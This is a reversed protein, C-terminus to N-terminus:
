PFSHDESYNSPPLFLGDDITDWSISTLDTTSIIKRGQVTMEVTLRVVAGPFAEPDPFQLGLAVGAPTTATEQLLGMGRELDEDRVLWYTLKKEGAEATYKRAQRGDIQATETTETLKPRESALSGGRAVIGLVRRKQDELEEPSFVQFRKRGHDLTVMKGTSACYINSPPSLNPHGAVSGLQVDTRMCGSKIYLTMKMEAGQPGPGGPFKQVTTMVITAMSPPPAAIPDSALALSILLLASYMPVELSQQEDLAVPQTTGLM